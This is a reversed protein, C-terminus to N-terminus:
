TRDTWTVENAAGPNEGEPGAPALAAKALVHASVPATLFVFVKILLENISVGPRRVLCWM